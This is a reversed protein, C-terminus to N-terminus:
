RHFVTFAIWVQALHRASLVLHITNGDMNRRLMSILRFPDLINQISLPYYYM